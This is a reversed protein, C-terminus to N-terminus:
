STKKLLTVIFRTGGGDINEVAIEGKEAILIQKVLALGLGNGESKHSSDTQYFRDFIHKMSEEDIGPGEDEITFRIKSELSELKIRVTGGHPGFKIANEILNNWVHSMVPENGVYEVAEMEVDFETDKKLWRPELSLISQRIQEDLSYRTRKASIGQNDVKSLLLINGVLTSLRQTNFLIKEIYEAQEATANEDSGQLLTAYGEIANIPTKFEHSVNSVFDTQLIETARLEETMRNFDSNMKRMETFGKTTDLKISFDGKAVKSMAAGITNFPAFFFKRLFIAAVIGLLASIIGIWFIDPFDKTIEFSSHLLEMLGSASAVILLIIAIVMMVFFLKMSVGTHKNNKRIM